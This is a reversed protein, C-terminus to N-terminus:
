RREIRHYVHTLAAQTGSYTGKTINGEIDDDDVASPDAAYLKQRILENDFVGPDIDSFTEDEISRELKAEKEEVSPQELITYPPPPPEIYSPLVPLEFTTAM